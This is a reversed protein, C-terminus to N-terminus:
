RDRTRSVCYSGTWRPPVSLPECDFGAARLAEVLHQAIRLNAAHEDPKSGTLVPACHLFAEVLHQAIPLNAALEEPKSRTLVPACHLIKAEDLAESRRHAEVIAMSKRIVEDARAVSACLSAIRGKSREIALHTDNLNQEARLM